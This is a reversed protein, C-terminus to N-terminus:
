IIGKKFLFIVIGIAAPLGFIVSYTFLVLTLPNILRSAPPTGGAIKTLEANQVFSSSEPDPYIVTSFESYAEPRDGIKEIRMTIPGPKTFEYKYVAAGVDSLGYTRELEKGDQTIVFEFPTLQLRENTRADFFDIFITVTKDTIIIPADWKMDIDYRGDNSLTHIPWRELKNGSGDVPYDPIDKAAIPDVTIVGEMWPHIICFYTYTGPVYFAYSWSTGPEFFNSDFIGDPEGKENTQVSQIGAGRGSTVTHPETDENKWTVKDGASVTMTKPEYWNALNQFTLDLSPNAAGKPITIVTTSEPSQFESSTDNNAQAQVQIPAISLGIVSSLLVFITSIVFSALVITKHDM